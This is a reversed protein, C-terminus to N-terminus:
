KPRDRPPLVSEIDPDATCRCNIPQGPHGEPPSPEGTWAFQKGNLDEHSPRVADDESTRWTYTRVGLAMQRTKNLEGNFKNTQDRAILAARKESIKFRKVLEGQWDAARRGARFNRTAVEQIESFYQELNKKIYSVNEKVFAGIVEDADPFMADVPIGIVSQFARNVQTANFAEIQRGANTALREIDPETVETWFRIKVQEMTRSIDEGYGDLNLSDLARSQFNALQSIFMTRVLDRAKKHFQLIGKLYQRELHRPQKLKIQKGLKGRKKLIEKTASQILPSQQIRKRPM